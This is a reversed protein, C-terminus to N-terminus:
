SLALNEQLKRHSLSVKKDMTKCAKLMSDYGVGFELVRCKTDFGTLFTRVGPDFFIAKYNSDPETEVKFDQCKLTRPTAIFFTNPKTDSLLRVAHQPTVLSYKAGRRERWFELRELKNKNWSSPFPTGQHWHKVDIEISQATRKTKYKLSFDNRSKGLSM